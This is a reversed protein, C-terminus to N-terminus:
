IIDHFLKKMASPVKDQSFSYCPILIENIEKILMNYIITYLLLMMPQTQTILLAAVDYAPPINQTILLAAVDYAPPIM